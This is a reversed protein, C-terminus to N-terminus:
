DNFPLVEQRLRRRKRERIAKAGYNDTLKHCKQCLTKGNSLSFRLEPYAAVSKVNAGSV